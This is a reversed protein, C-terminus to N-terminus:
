SFMYVGAAIRGAVRGTDANGLNMVEWDRFPTDLITGVTLVGLAALDRKVKEIQRELKADQKADQKADM